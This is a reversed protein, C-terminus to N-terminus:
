FIATFFLSCSDYVENKAVKLIKDFILKTVVHNLMDKLIALSLFVFVFNDLADFSIYNLQTVM